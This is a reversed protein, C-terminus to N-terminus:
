WIIAILVHKMSNAIFSPRFSWTITNSTIFLSKVDCHFYWFKHLYIWNVLRMYSLVYFGYKIAFRIFCPIYNNVHCCVSINKDSYRLFIIMYFLCNWLRKTKWEHKLLSDLKEISLCSFVINWVFTHRFISYLYSRIHRCKKKKNSMLKLLDSQNTVTLNMM